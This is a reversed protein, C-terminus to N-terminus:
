AAGADLAQRVKQALAQQTFPKQIFEIDEGLVGRDAMIDATYGSMFLVKLGPCTQRLRTHLEKGSMGPMVVDTLLLDVKGDSGEGLQLCKEPTEGTLVQYGLRGLMLCAMTRVTPDDEAVLITESGGTRQSENRPPSSPIADSDIAPLYANFTTGKGPESHVSVNGGHQTIIGYVTALGLGAGKGMAKTTFFPEFIRAQTLPDMGAGTDSVTLAVYQGPSLDPHRLAYEQDLYVENTEIILDGGAPMADQANVALNMLVQEIQGRDARVLRLGPALRLSVDIDERLTRRLLNAFASIVDNLNLAKVELTQKRGFAMLQRVLDRAREGAEVIQAIDHRQKDQLDADVILMEGYGLIPSLLNNLDHAVGGALLGVAEMKQSQRLQDELREHDAEMRKRESVDNGVSLIEVTRGQDDTVARNRWRVWVRRGERCLNENENDAYRDPDEVINQIMEALNRGTAETEPLITGILRQGIIEPEAYGFFRLGYENVFTIVGNPTWRVIISNVNEVLERYKEESRRLGEEAKLRSEQDLFLMCVLLTAVPFIVIVPVAIQYFVPGSVGGPLTLTLLLMVLHVLMGFLYLYAPRLAEPRRRRLYHYAVGLAASESIVSIGMVTGVGGIWLRYAATLAVTIVATIPGGFLGAISIIISRGDFIIGPILRLPNMMGVVVVAGFVLGSLIQYTLTGQKWRRMILTHVISLSVLLAINNILNLYVVM